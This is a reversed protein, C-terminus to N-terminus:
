VGLVHRCNRVLSIHEVMPGVSLYLRVVFLAFEVRFVSAYLVLCRRSRRVAAGSM